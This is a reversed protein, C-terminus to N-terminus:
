ITGLKGTYLAWHIGKITGLLYHVVSPLYYPVMQSATVTEASLESVIEVGTSYIGM